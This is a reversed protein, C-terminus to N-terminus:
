GFLGSLAAGPLILIDLPITISMVYPRRSESVGARSLGRTLGFFYSTDYRWGTDVSMASPEVRPAAGEDGARVPGALLCGILLAGAMGRRSVVM